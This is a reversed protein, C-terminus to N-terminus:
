VFTGQSAGQHGGPLRPAATNSSGPQAGWPSFLGDPPLQGLFTLFVFIRRISIPLKKLFICCKSVLGGLPQRLEEAGGFM